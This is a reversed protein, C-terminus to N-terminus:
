SLDTTSTSTSPLFTVSRKKKLPERTPRSDETKKSRRDKLSQIQTAELSTILEIVLAKQQQTCLEDIKNEGKKLEAQLKTIRQHYYDRLLITLTKSFELHATEWKVTFDFDQEPIQPPVRPQLGKPSINRTKCDNLYQYHHKAKNLNLATKRCLRFYPVAPDPIRVTSTTQDLDSNTNDPPPNTQNTAMNESTM